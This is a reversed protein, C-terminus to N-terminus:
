GSPLSLPSRMPGCSRAELDRLVCPRVGACRRKIQELLVTKGSGRMGMLLIVPLDRRRRDPPLDLCSRILRDVVKVRSPLEVMRDPVRGTGRSATVGM